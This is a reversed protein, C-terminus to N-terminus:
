THKSTGIKNIHQIPLAFFSRCKFEVLYKGVKQILYVCYVNCTNLKLGKCYGRRCIILKRIILPTAFEGPGKRESEPLIEGYVTKLTAKFNETVLKSEKKYKYVHPSLLIRREHKKYTTKLCVSFSTLSKM